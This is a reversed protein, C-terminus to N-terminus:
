AFNLVKRIVAFGRRLGPWVAGTGAMGSHLATSGGTRVKMRNTLWNYRREYGPCHPCRWVTWDGERHSTCQHIHERAPTILTFHPPMAINWFHKTTKTAGPLGGSHLFQGAGM